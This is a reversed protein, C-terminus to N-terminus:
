RPVARTTGRWNVLFIVAAYERPNEDPVTGPPWACLWVHQFGRSAVFSSPDPQDVGVQVRRMDEGSFGDPPIPLVRGLEDISMLGNITTGEHYTHELIPAGSCVIVVNREVLSAISRGKPRPRQLPPTM